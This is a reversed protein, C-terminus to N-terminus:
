HLNTQNSRKLLRLLNQKLGASFIPVFQIRDQANVISRIEISQREFAQTGRANIQYAGILKNAAAQADLLNLEVQGDRAEYHDLLRQIDDLFLSLAYDGRCNAQEYGWRIETMGKSWRNLV